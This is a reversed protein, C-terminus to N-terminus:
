SSGGREIFTYIARGIDQRNVKEVVGSSDIVYAFEKSWELCNAVILDANSDKLSRHAIELLKTDSLGVQLKFKVLQGKFGWKRFQDILKITPTMELYLKPHSSSVKTSSDVPTLGGEVGDVLVRSVKYDSVAASHVILDYGGTTIEQQLIKELEDFTQYGIVRCWEEPWLPELQSDIFKASFTNALTPNSTVLTVDWGRRKLYDAIMTGTRGKFINTVGRVQDIPVRTAGATVLVKMKKEM